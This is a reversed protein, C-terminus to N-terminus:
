QAPFIRSSKRSTEDFINALHGCSRKPQFDKKLLDLFNQVKEFM